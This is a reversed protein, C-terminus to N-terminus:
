SYKRRGTSRATGSRRTSPQDPKRKRRRSQHSKSSSRKTSPPIHDMALEDISTESGDLDEDENEDEVPWSLNFSHMMDSSEAEAEDDTNEDGEDNGDEGEETNDDWEDITQVIENARAIAANRYEMTLDMANKFATAGKLFTEKDSTMSYGKLQHIYYEPRSGSGNPQAISHAYMKLQGMHYISSLTYANNDYMLEGRGYSRLSQM